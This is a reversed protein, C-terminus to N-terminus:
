SMISIRVIDGQLVQQSYMHRHAVVVVVLELQPWTYKIWYEIALTKELLESDVGVDLNLAQM